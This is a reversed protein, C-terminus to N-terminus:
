NNKGYAYCGVKDKKFNKVEIIMFLSSTCYSFNQHYVLAQSKM